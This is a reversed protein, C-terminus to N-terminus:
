KFKSKVVLLIKKLSISYKFAVRGSPISFSNKSYKPLRVAFSTVRYAMSSPETANGRYM